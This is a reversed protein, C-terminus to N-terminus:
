LDIQVTGQMVQVATGELVVKRIVSGMKTVKVCIESRRDMEVGQVM